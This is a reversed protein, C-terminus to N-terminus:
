QEHRPSDARRAHPRFNGVGAGNIEIRLISNLGQGVANTNASAGPQTYGDIVTQDNIFLQSELEISFWSHPWDPDIDLISADNAATTTAINARTM